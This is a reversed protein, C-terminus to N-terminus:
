DCRLVSAPDVSAAQSVPLAMALLAIFGMAAAASALVFPDGPEIGFLLHRILSSLLLAGTVGLVMGLAIFAGAEALLARAIQAPRAGVALRIGIEHRRRSVSYWLVGFLGAGALLAAVIGFFISLTALLRELRVNDEIQADVTKIDFLPLSRDIRAVVSRLSGAVTGPDSSTRVFVTLARFAGKEPLQDFPVYWFRVPTERMERYKANRTVGVVVYEAKGGGPGIRRGLPTATGFYFRAFAENVIAVRPSTATDGANFERGAILPIGLTSFYGAGIADRNPGRDDDSGTFGDVVIGSGWSRGAILRQRGFAVSQVGPITRAQDVVERYFGPLRDATYGSPNLTVQLLHPTSFGVDIHGLNRLSGIFLGAGALLVLSIAVQLSTLIKRGTFRNAHFSHAGKLGPALGAKSSQLAPALGFGIAAAFAVAFNFALLAADPAMGLTSHNRDSIALTLLVRGLGYAVFLGACGGLLGLLLSETLLQRVLRFRGAGIALRIRFEHTRAASRALLLHAINVCALLLVAAVIASLVWIAREYALRQGANGQAAPTVHLRESALVKSWQATRRARGPDEDHDRHLMPMLSQAASPPAAGPKLRAFIQIWRSGRNTLPPPGPFQVLTSVMNLPVRLDPSRGPDLGDFGAASVGVVTFPQNNLRITRNLISPDAGFRRKWFPHSLIVVPHAGATIDDNPTFLRGLAPHVGLLEFYNGSVFEASAPEAGSELQLAIEGLSGSGLFGSFNQNPAAQLDRLFPHSFSNGPETQLISSKALAVIQEPHTVPLLDLIVQKVLGFIATNAGVGLALSFVATATFGPSKGLLRWAYALDKGLDDLLRVRRTDRCLEETVSLSGFSRSAASRADRDSMGEERYERVLQDFHLELERQLDADVRSSRFISRLRHLAIRLLRM